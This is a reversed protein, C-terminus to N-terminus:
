VVIGEAEIAKLIPNASLPGNTLAFSTALFLSIVRDHDFGIEWALDYLQQRLDPTLDPLEVFIDLDSEELADGRARSGYVVIRKLPTISEIREKLLHVILQDDSNLM